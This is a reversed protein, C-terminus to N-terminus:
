VEFLREKFIIVFVLTFILGIMSFIFIARPNLDLFEQYIQKTEDVLDM